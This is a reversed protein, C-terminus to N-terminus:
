MEFTTCCWYKTHSCSCISYVRQNDNSLWHLPQEPKLQWKTQLTEPTKWDAIVETTQWSKQLVKFLVTQQAFGYEVL